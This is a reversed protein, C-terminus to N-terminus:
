EWEGLIAWGPGPIVGKRGTYGMMAVTHGWEGLIAWGLELVVGIGGAYQVVAGAHCGVGWYVGDCDWYSGWEGLTARGPM